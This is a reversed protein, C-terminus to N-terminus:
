SNGEQVACASVASHGDGGCVLVPLTSVFWFYVAGACYGHNTSFDGNPVYHCLLWQLLTNDRNM